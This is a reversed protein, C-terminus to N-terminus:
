QVTFEVERSAQGGGALLTRAEVRLVYRGPSFEKLPVTASYGYGGRQGKLEDSRREDESSHVVNGADTLITSKISVRHPTGTQNDYVEVFFSLLDGSPFSRLAAPPARLVEKFEADPNATPTRSASASTLLLGSMALAQRSFDPVDLDYSVSGVAGSGVDRAGVRLVYRGPPIELRRTVRVGHKSVMEHTQQRLRLNMLDRGGDRVKGTQDVAVVAVELDDHFLGDKETFRLRAGDVELTLAVSANSDTGRLPAAFVRVGLGSIPVPSEIAERLEPSTEANVAKSPESRSRPTSYGNRARVRLGPRTVRVDVRRFRGDRRASKSYYGLLYYSSNEQVIRVFADAFDNRNVIAFGGTEDSITRLSGQSNLLEQNMSTLGLSNDEPIGQLEMAEEAIGALGRPDVAYFSVNARSAAAIAERTEYMIDTAYRNEVPNSVDYDIGESFFLVAKRRGRVGALFDAVSKLTNLSSRAKFAREPESVDRAGGLGLNRNLDDIKTLTASRLKQGIFTDAARLLRPRSSTFEQVGKTSGGTQVIAAVDNEGLHREIFQRVAVKVRPTRAFNTHLDDLVIVYIRGDFERQNSRVDPEIPAPAFLPADPRELPLDVLSVVSLEQPTGEEVVRFDDKTLNRVFNGQEDTVVADIEVYNIEVRFTIPPQEADPPKPPPSQQAPLGLTAILLFAALSSITRM